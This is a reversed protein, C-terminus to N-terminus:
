RKGKSREIELRAETLATQMSSLLTRVETQFARNDIRDALIDAKLQIDRDAGTKLAINVDGGWLLLPIGIGLFIIAVIGAAQWVHETWNRQVARREGGNQDSIM